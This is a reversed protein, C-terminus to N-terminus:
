VPTITNAETHRECHIASVSPQLGLNRLFTVAPVEGYISRGVGSWSRKRPNFAQNALNGLVTTPSLICPM